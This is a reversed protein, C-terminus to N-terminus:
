NYKFRNGDSTRVINFESSHKGNFSFGVFEERVM